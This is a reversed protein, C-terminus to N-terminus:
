HIDECFEPHATHVDTDDHSFDVNTLFFTKHAHIILEEFSHIKLKGLEM